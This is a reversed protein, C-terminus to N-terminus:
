LGFEIIFVYNKIKQTRRETNKTRKKTCMKKFLLRDKTLSSKTKKTSSAVDIFYIKRKSFFEERQWLSVYFWLISILVARM